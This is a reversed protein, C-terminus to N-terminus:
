IVIVGHSYHNIFLKPLYEARVVVCSRTGRLFIRVNPHYFQDYHLIVLSSIITQIDQRSLDVSKQPIVMINHLEWVSVQLLLKPVLNQESHGDISVKLCENAIQSQVVQTHQLIWNYLYNRVQANIKTNLQRKSISSWLMSGERIAKRKSKTAGVQRVDTKKVDLVETFLCLSKRASFIKVIMPPGPSMPSNDTFIEPTYVLSAEIIAKFQLQDDCKGASTDLKSINGSM